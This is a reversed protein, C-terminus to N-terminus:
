PFCYGNVGFTSCGGACFVCRHDDFQIDAGFHRFSGCHWFVSQVQGPIVARYKELTGKKLLIRGTPIRGPSGLGSPCYQKAAAVTSVSVRCLMEDQAECSCILAAGQLSSASACILVDLVAWGFYCQLLRGLWSEQEFFVHKLFKQGHDDAQFPDM